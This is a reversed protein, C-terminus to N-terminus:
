NISQQLTEPMAELNNTELPNVSPQGNNNMIKQGEEGLLFAMFQEAGAPNPANNPITVGYVMPQGVKTIYEGPEQGSVDYSVTKYFDAYANTKLNIEDPLEVFPHEHQKAVSRYIFLYDLEGTELLALLDTEKPRVNKEPCGQVLQDYLGAQDYHQEALKWVLQSRYGCPDADPESHGYQVDEDLLIEYWNDGNIEDKRKSDEGYMIVMENTAFNVYWDTFEPVMLEEIVTYDASAIVDAKKGLDTVKRVTDRSGASETKVDYQPYQEEFAAEVEDFPVSLSGAHFVKLEEVEAPAESSGSTTCGVLGIAIVIVTIILIKNKYMFVEM